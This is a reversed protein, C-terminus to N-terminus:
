PRHTRSPGPKPLRVAPAGPFASRWRWALYTIPVLILLERTLAIRATPLFTPSDISRSVPAFVELGTQVYASSLPWFAMVGIPAATDLALSDLIPHTVWAIWAAIWIMRRSGALPWRAAALITAAIAAAGISHSVGRHQAVLLDLDPMTGLAALTAVQIAIGRRERAVGGIAWGAAVAALAHGIPTPMTEWYRVFM